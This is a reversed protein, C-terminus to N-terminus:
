TISLLKLQADTLPQGALGAGALSALTCLAVTGECSSPIVVGSLNLLRALNAPPTKFLAWRQLCAQYLLDCAQEHTTVSRTSNTGSADLVIVEIGSERRRIATGGSTMLSAASARSTAAATPTTSSATPPELAAVDDNVVETSSRERRLLRNNALSGILGKDQQRQRIASPPQLGNSSSRLRKRVSAQGSTTTSLTTSTVISSSPQILSFTSHLSSPVPKRLRIRLVGAHPDPVPAGSSSVDPSILSPSSPTPCRDPPPSSPSQVPSEHPSTAITSALDKHDAVVDHQADLERSSSSQPRDSNRNRRHAQIYALIQESEPSIKRTLAPPPTTTLLPVASSMHTPPVPPPLAVDGSCKVETSSSSSPSSDLSGSTSPLPPLHALINDKSTGPMLLTLLPHDATNCGLTVFRTLGQEDLVGLHKATKLTVVHKNRSAWAERSLMVHTAQKMVEVSYPPYLKLVSAGAHTAVFSARDPQHSFLLLRVGKMPLDHSKLFETWKSPAKALDTTGQLFHLSPDVFNHHKFSEEIFSRQLIPVCSFCAALYTADECPRAVVFVDTRYVAQLSDLVKGRHSLIQSRIAATTEADFGCIVFAKRRRQGGPGDTATTPPVNVDDLGAVSDVEHKDVRAHHSEGETATDCDSSSGDSDDSHSSTQTATNSEPESADNQPLIPKKKKIDPSKTTTTSASPSAGDADPTRTATMTDVQLCTPHVRQNRNTPLALSPGKKRMRKQPLTSRNVYKPVCKTLAEALMHAASDGERPLIDSRIRFFESAGQRELLGEAELLELSIRIEDEKQVPVSIANPPRLSWALQTPSMFAHTGLMREWVTQWIHGAESELMRKVVVRFRKGGGSLLTPYEGQDEQHSPATQADEREPQLTSSTTHPSESTGAGQVKSRRTRTPPDSARDGSTHQIDLKSVNPLHKHRM